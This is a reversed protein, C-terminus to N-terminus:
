QGPGTEPVVGPRLHCFPATTARPNQLRATM